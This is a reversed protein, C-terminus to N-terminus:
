IFSSGHHSIRQSPRLASPSEDPTAITVRQNPSSITAAYEASRCPTSTARQRRNPVAFVTTRSAEDPQNCTSCGSVSSARGRPISSASSSHSASILPIQGEMRPYGIESLKRRLVKSLMLWLTSRFHKAAGALVINSRCYFLLVVIARLVLGAVLLNVLADRRWAIQELEFKLVDEKSQPIM